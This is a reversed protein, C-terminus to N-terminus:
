TTGGTAAAFARELREVVLATDWRAAREPGLKRARRRVQETLLGPLADALAIPDGDRFYWASEGGIEKQGPV